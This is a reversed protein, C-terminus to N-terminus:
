DFQEVAKERGEILEGSKNFHKSISPFEKALIKQVRKNRQKATLDPRTKDWVKLLEAKRTARQSKREAEYSKKDSRFKRNILDTSDYDKQSTKGVGLSMDLMGKPLFMDELKVFIRNEGAHAGRTYDGDLSQKRIAELLETFRSHFDGTTGQLVMGMASAPDNALNVDGSLGTLTNELFYYMAINPHKLFKDFGKELKYEEEEDDDPMMFMNVLSKMLMLSLTMSAEALLFNMKNVEQQYQSDSEKNLQKFGAIEAIKTNSPGIRRGTFRDTAQQFFKAGVAGTLFTMNLATKKMEELLAQVTNADSAISRRLARVGVYGAWGVLPIMPSVLFSTGVITAMGATGSMALSALDQRQESKSNLLHRIVGDKKGYRRMVYATLWTKFLMALAGVSTRKIGTTSTDRYDGHIRAITAPIKGSNGFYKVYEESNRNIWTNRNSETDFEPKLVLNGDADLDFAPFSDGNESDPNFVQVSGNKGEIEIDMLMALIQPRQISKETLEIMALPDVSRTLGKYIGNESIKEVENKSNQFVGLSDILTNMVQNDKKIKPDFKRKGIKWKQTYSNARVFNGETWEIGDNMRGGLNGIAYNKLQSVGNLGMGSLITLKIAWSEFFSGTTIVRGKSDIIKQLHAIDKQAEPNQKNPDSKRIIAIAGKLEQILEREHTDFTKTWAGKGQQHVNWNARNNIEYMHTSIFNRVLKIAKDKDGKTESNNVNQIRTQAFTLIDEIEKKAKFKEVIELQTELVDLLDSNHNKLLADKAAAEAIDELSFSGSMTIENVVLFDKLEKSITNMTFSAKPTKTRTKLIPLIQESKKKIAEDFSKIEGNIKLKTNPDKFQTTSLIKLVRDLVKKSFHKALGWVGEQHDVLMKYQHPLADEFETSDSEKKHKRNRNLYNLGEEMMEWGEYLVSDTEINDVFNQDFYKQNKPLYTTYKLSSPEIATQKKGEKDYYEKAITSTGTGKFNQSFSFPSDLYYESLLKNREEIPLESINGINNAQLLRKKSKEMNREFAYLLRRQEEVVRKYEKEAIKRNGSSSILSTILKEKYIEAEEASEFLTGFNTQLDPDTILEPIRSVDIFNVEDKLSNFLKVREEKIKEFDESDKNKKYVLKTIKNHQNDVDEKLRTWSESFKGILKNRGNNGTTKFIDYDTTSYLGGLFGEKNSLGLEKLRSELRPKFNKMKLRLNKTEEKGVADDYTKRVFRLIPHGDSNGDIPLLFAAVFSPDKINAKMQKLLNNAIAIEETSANPDKKVKFIERETLDYEKDKLTNELTNFQEVFDEFLKKDEQNELNQYFTSSFTDQTNDSNHVFSLGNIIKRAALLNAVTPNELLVSRVQNLDRKFYEFFNELVQSENELQTLDKNLGNVVEQLDNIQIYDDKTKNSREELVKLSQLLENRLTTKKDLYLTYNYASASAPMDDYIEGARISDAIQLQNAEEIEDLRNQETLAELLSDSPTITILVGNDMKETNILKGHVKSQYRSNESNITEKINKSLDSPDKETYSFFFGRDTNELNTHKTFSSEVEKVVDIFEVKCAM